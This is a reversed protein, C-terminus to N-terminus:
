VRVQLPVPPVDGDTLVVKVTAAIVLGAGVALKDALAVLMVEPLLAVRFQDEALAVDHVADPPQVPVLAVVPVRATDGVLM